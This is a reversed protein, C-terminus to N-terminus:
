NNTSCAKGCIGCNNIDTNVNIECGDTQKNANCDAFGTNCAGSCVSAACAPAAINNASCKRGCGGCNNADATTLTECGDTLKDNNCDSYGLDCISNCLGSACSPTAHSNSCVKACGGCNLADQSPDVECGDDLKNNNCDLFGT